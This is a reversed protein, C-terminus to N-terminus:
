FNDTCSAVRWYWLGRPLPFPTVTKLRNGLSRLRELSGAVHWLSVRSRAGEMCGGWGSLGQNRGSLAEPYQLIPSGWKRVEGKRRSDWRNGWELKDGARHHRM